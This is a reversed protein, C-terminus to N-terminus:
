EVRVSCSAGGEDARLIISGDCHPTDLYDFCSYDFPGCSSDALDLVCGSLKSVPSECESLSLNAMCQAVSLSPLAAECFRTSIGCALQVACGDEVRQDAIPAHGPGGAVLTSYWECWTEREEESLDGVVREPDPTEPPDAPAAPAVPTTCEWIQAASDCYCERDGPYSCSSELYGYCNTGDEPMAGPCGPGSGGLSCKWVQQAGLSRACYCLEQQWQGPEWEWSYDCTLGDTECEGDPPVPGLPCGESSGPNAPTPTVEEVWAGDGVSPTAGAGVIGCSDAGSASATTAEPGAGGTGGGGGSGNGSSGGSNSQPEGKTAPEGRSDDGVELKGACGLVGLVALAGVSVIAGSFKM